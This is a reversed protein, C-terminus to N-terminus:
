AYQNILSSKRILADFMVQGMLDLVNIIRRDSLYYVVSSGDRESMVLSHHRLTRLHRSVTSQPLDLEEALATVHRPQEDLAYLILIRKPDAMARCISAHLLTLEEIPPYSM